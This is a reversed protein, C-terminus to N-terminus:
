NERYAKTMSDMREAQWPTFEDMCSDYTYDMFNTIPDDGAERKCSNRNTPCGYAPSREAPTDVVYDGMGKCGGQFTHYLGLWHGVEHTLTDGESYNAVGGILLPLSSYLVVVGDNNPNGAYDNPFTAWGLLNGGANTTYVNLVNAGGVRLAAKMSQEALSGYSANFWSSNDTYTTGALNFSIGTDNSNSGASFAANIVDVQANIDNATLAGISGDTIVHFHVDIVRVTPTPPTTDGGGGNNGGGGNGNGNGAGDPKKMKNLRKNIRDIEVETPIRTACRKFAANPNAHDWSSDDPNPGNAMSQPIAIILLSVMILLLRFM